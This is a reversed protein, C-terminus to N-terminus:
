GTGAPEIVELIEPQRFRHSDQLSSQYGMTGQYKTVSFYRLTARVKSLDTVPNTTSLKKLLESLLHAKSLVRFAISTGSGRHFLIYLGPIANGM